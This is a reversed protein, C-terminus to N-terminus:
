LMSVRNRGLHKSFYLAEDAKRIFEDSSNLYVSAGISITVSIMREDPLIFRHQEVASRIKEGIEMATVLTCNPLLLSFEEGGKRFALKSISHEKLITAIQQLVADGAQHGYTDNVKKFHDIDLMLLSLAEGKEESQQISQNLLIDFQRVNLLGTLFDVTVQKEMFRSMGNSQDVYTISVYAIYATVMFATCYMIYVTINLTMFALTICAMVMCFLTLWIWRKTWSSVYNIIITCGLGVVLVSVSALTSVVSSTQFLVLRALSIIIAAVTISIPGGSIAAIIIALHRLDLIFTEVQLSYKMLIMGLIGTIVGVVLKGRLSLSDHLTRDKFIQGMVFIFSLLITTNIFVNSLM